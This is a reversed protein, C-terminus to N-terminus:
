FAFGEVSFSFAIGTNPKDFKYNKYLVRLVEKANEHKLLCSIMVKNQEAEFGFAAALASPSMSGKAYVVEVAHAGHDALMSLIKAKKRTKAIIVFYQLGNIVQIDNMKVEGIMALIQKKMIRSLSASIRSLNM